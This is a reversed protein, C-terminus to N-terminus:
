MTGSIVRKISQYKRMLFESFVTFNTQIEGSKLMEKDIDVDNIGDNKNVPAYAYFPEVTTAMNQNAYVAPFHKTHTRRLRLKMDNRTTDFVSEFSIDRTKYGPTNVNAVNSAVVKQRLSMCDLIEKCSTIVPLDFMSM